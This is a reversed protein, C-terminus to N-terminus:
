RRFFHKQDDDLLGNGTYLDAESWEAFYLKGDEPNNIILDYILICLANLRSYSCFIILRDDEYKLAIDYSYVTYTADKTKITMVIFLKNTDDSRYWTIHRQIMEGNVQLPKLQYNFTNDKVMQNLFVQVKKANSGEIVIASNGLNSM